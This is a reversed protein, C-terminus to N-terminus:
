KSLLGKFRRLTESPNKQFQGILNGLSAGFFVAVIGDASLDWGLYTSVGSLVATAIAAPVSGKASAIGFEKGRDVNLLKKIDM